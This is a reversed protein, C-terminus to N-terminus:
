MVPWQRGFAAEVTPLTHAFDNLLRWTGDDSLGFIGSSVTQLKRRDWGLRAATASNNGKWPTTLFPYKQSHLDPEAPEHCLNKDLRRGHHTVLEHFQQLFTDPVRPTSPWERNVLGSVSNSTLATVGASNCWAIVDLRTRSFCSKWLLDHVFFHNSKKLGLHEQVLLLHKPFSSLVLDPTCWYMWQM